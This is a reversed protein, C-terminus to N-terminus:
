PTVRCACTTPEKASPSSFYFGKGGCMACVFNNSTTSRKALMGYLYALVVEKPISTNISSRDTYFNLVQYDPHGLSNYITYLKKITPKRFWGRSVEVENEFMRLEPNVKQLVEQLVENVDKDKVTKWEDREHDTLWTTIAM